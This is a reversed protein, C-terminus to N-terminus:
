KPMKCGTQDLPVTAKDASIMIPEGMYPIGPYFENTPPVVQSIFMPALLQHDEARMISPGTIGEFEMGEWAGIIKEVDFSGARRVAEFFQMMGNIARGMHAAPTKQFERYKPKKMWGQVLEKSAPTRVTEFWGECAWSGISYNGAEVDPIITDPLYYTMFPAKIGLERSQKILNQLDTTWNSTFIVEPNASKVKSVYPGFDKLALPHFEEAVIKSDPIFQTIRRKFGEASEHGLAYDQNVIAFRRFPKTAFFQAVALARTETNPGPRFTYRSCRDGTLTLGEAAYSIFMAKEAAAVQSLALAIHTGSTGAFIKVGDLINKKAKRITVDPKMLSDEGIIEVKRGLIGGKENIQEALFELAVLYCEGSRKFPGSLPEYVAIKVTEAGAVPTGFSMVLFMSVFYAGIKWIKQM